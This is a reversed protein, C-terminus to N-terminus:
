KTKIMKIRQFPSVDFGGQICLASGCTVKPFKQFIVSGSNMSGKEWRMIMDGRYGLDRL